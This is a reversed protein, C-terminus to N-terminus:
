RPTRGSAADGAGPAIGRAAVPRSPRSCTAGVVDWLPAAGRCARGGRPPRTTRARCGTPAGLGHARALAVRDAVSRRDSFWVTHRTAGSTYSFTPSRQGEDRHVAAGHQAPSRRPPRPPRAHLATSSGAAWDRGYLPSASSARAPRCRPRAHPPSASVWALRRDAGARVRRGHQDYGMVRIRDSVAGLHRYDYVAPTLKGRWVSSSDDTRPMVTHVCLEGEAHLAGCVDAAFANYADRVRAATGADTTLALHEYNFEIGEYSSSRVVELVRQVHQARSGPDGLCSIAVAPTMTSTISPVVAIGHGHLGDIVGPSGAGAMAEIGTCSTARFWFPSVTHFLDANAAIRAYAVDANWYPLWTSSMRAAGPGGAQQGSAPPAALATLLLVALLVGRGVARRM